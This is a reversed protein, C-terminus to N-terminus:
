VFFDYFVILDDADLLNLETQHRFTAQARTKHSQYRINYLRASVWRLLELLALLAVPSPKIFVPLTLGKLYISFLDRLAENM